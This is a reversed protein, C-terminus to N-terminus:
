YIDPMKRKEILIKGIETKEVLITKRRFDEIWNKNDNGNTKSDVILFRLKDCGLKPERYNEEGPIYLYKHALPYNAYECPYFGYKKKAYWSILYQYSYDYFSDTYTYLNFGNDENHTYIWDLVKLQNYLLSPNDSVQLYSFYNNRFNMLNFFLIIGIVSAGGIKILTQRRRVLGWCTLLIVILSVIPIYVTHWARWGHNSGFFLYSVLVLGWGTWFFNKMFKNQMKM